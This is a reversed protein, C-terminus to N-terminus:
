KGRQMQLWQAMIREKSDPMEAELVHGKQQVLAMRRQKLATAESSNLEEIRRADEPTEAMVFIEGSNAIKENSLVNDAQKDKTTVDRERRKLIMWGDFADDDAVVEEPPCDQAEYASDYIRSWVVLSRQEDTLEAAPRGFVRGEAHRCTWVSRWPETRALERYVADALKSRLQAQVAEDLLPSEEQWFTNGTWVPTVGDARSLCRGVLYRTRCLSAHGQCTLHDYAHRESLLRLQEARTVDLAKRAKAKEYSKFACKYLGVKLNEINRDIVKLTENNEASWLGQGVLFRETDAEDLLDRAQADALAEAYVEAAEYREVTTPVRFVFVAQQRGETLRVRNVGALVRAVYLEREAFTM